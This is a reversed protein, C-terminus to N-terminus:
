AVLILRRNLLNAHTRCFQVQAEDLEEYVMNCIYLEVHAAFNIQLYM